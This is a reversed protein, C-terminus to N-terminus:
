LTGRAFGEYIEQDTPVYAGPAFKGLKGVLEEWSERVLKEARALEHDIGNPIRRSYRLIGLAAGLKSMSSYMAKTATGNLESGTEPEWNFWRLQTSGDEFRHSFAMNVPRFKILTRREMENQIRGDSMRMLRSFMMPRIPMPVVVCPPIREPYQPFKPVSRIHLGTEDETEEVIQPTLRLLERTATQAGETYALSKQKRLEKEHREKEDQMWERAKRRKKSTSM